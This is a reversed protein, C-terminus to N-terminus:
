RSHGPMHRPTNAIVNGGYGHVSRLMHTSAITDSSIGCGSTRHVISKEHAAELAEAIQRAYNLAAEVPLPGALNEGEVLEMVLFNPGVDYVQCINPHNLSAISM